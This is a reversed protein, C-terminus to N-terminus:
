FNGLYRADVHLIRKLFRHGYMRTGYPVFEQEGRSM